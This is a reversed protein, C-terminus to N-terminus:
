ESEKYYLVLFVPIVLITQLKFALACGLTIFVYKWKKKEYLYVSLLIWFTYISDCQRWYSANILATPLFLAMGYFVATWLKRHEGQNHEYVYVGILIATLIEFLMSFYKIGYLPNVPIYTLLALFLMYGETYNGIVNKLGYIGGCDKLQMYWPELYDIYDGSKYNFLKVRTYVAVM